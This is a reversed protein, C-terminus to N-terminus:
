SLWGSHSLFPVSFGFLWIVYTTGGSGCLRGHMVGHKVKLLLPALPTVEVCHWRASHEYGPPSEEVVPDFPLRQSDPSVNMAQIVQAEVSARGWTGTVAWLLGYALVVIVLTRLSFQFRRRPKAKNSQGM